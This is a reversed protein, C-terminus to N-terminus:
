LGAFGRGGGGVKGDAIEAPRTFLEVGYSPFLVKECICEIIKLGLLCNIRRQEVTIMRLAIRRKGKLGPVAINLATLGGELALVGEIDEDGM